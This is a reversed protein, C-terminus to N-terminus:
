TELYPVSLYGIGSYLTSALESFAIESLLPAIFRFDFQPLNQSLVYCALLQPDDALPLSFSLQPRHEPLLHDYPVDVTLDHSPSHVMSLGQSRPFRMESGINVYVIKIIWIFYNVPDV